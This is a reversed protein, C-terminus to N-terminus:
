AKKQKKKGGRRPSKKRKGVVGAEVVECADAGALFDMFVKFGRLRDNGKQAQVMLEQEEAKKVAKKAEAKSVVKEAEKLLAAKGLELFKYSRGTDCDEGDFKGTMQAPAESVYKILAREAPTGHKESIELWKEVARKLEDRLWQKNEDRARSSAPLSDIPLEALQPLYRFKIAHANNMRRPVFVITGQGWSNKEKWKLKKLVAKRRKETYGLHKHVWDVLRAADKTDLDTTVGRRIKPVERSLMMCETHTYESNHLVLGMGMWKGMTIAAVCGCFDPYQNTMLMRGTRGGTMCEDVLAFMGLSKLLVALQSLFEARLVAGCGANMLELFICRVWKGEMRYLLVRDRLEKLCKNELDRLEDLGEDGDGPLHYPMAITSCLRQPYEALKTEDTEIRALNGRMDFASTSLTQLIGSDGALYSGCAFFCLEINGNTAEMIMQLNATSGNAFEGGLEFPRCCLKVVKDLKTQGGRRDLQGFFRGWENACDDSM